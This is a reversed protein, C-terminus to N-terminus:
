ISLRMLAGKIEEINKIGPATEFQSNIDLGVLAPIERAAEKAEDINALSIGGALLFPVASSYSRLWRWDFSAGTGGRGSDLLYLDPADTRSGISAVDDPTSVSLAKVILLSPIRRRLERIYGGDEEGHLQAGGLNNREILECVQELPADRFVGVRTIAPPLDTAEPPLSPGVYRPSSEVFIFGIYDPALAGIASVNAGDRM